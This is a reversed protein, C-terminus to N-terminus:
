DKRIAGTERLGVDRRQIIPFTSLGSTVNKGTVGISIPNSSRSFSSIRGWTFRGVPNNFTGTTSLGIVSTNSKINCTAIGTVPDFAHIYYINDLCITSIGIISNNHTDVSTVGTGIKTDTIYLPYGTTLTPFTLPDRSLTFKIALPVGVGTTTAIGVIVGDYGTVLQAKNIKDISQRAISIIINPPATYTYGFGPNVIQAATVQGNVITVTATATTGIGIGFRKPPAIKITSSTGIGSGSNTVVLSQITGAISVIATVAASVPDNYQDVIIAGFETPNQNEYNFFSANDVFLLSSNDASLDKIIRATPYVQSELSDRTKPIITNNIFLDTKQKTWSIPRLRGSDIGDGLYLNTEIKDSAVIDVVTREGQEITNQLDTNNSLIRISDGPKITESVTVKVSDENITGVYFFVSINDESKPPFTFAFSTGGNFTYAKKPEQLAGNIFIVLLADFDILQSDLDGDNTEFSLLQSKYYLPFRTRVGDQYNKISDIYNLEGFQWSAFNDNFVDVVTLEFPVLPASLEKATVLGVPRFKDGRRFGYGPRRIKYGSIEFVSGAIGVKNQPLVGLGIANTVIGVFSGIASAVDACDNSNYVGPLGSIDGEITPDFYQPLSSYQSITISTTISGVNLSTKDTFITGIGISSIKTDYQILNPLTRVQNGVVIGSTNIGTIETTTIGITAALSTGIGVNRIVNIAFDKAKGYAYISQQEEGVLYGNDIYIRGSEYVKSNGGYQLNYAIADLVLEIDDTCNENGGPVLFGPFAQLMNGVSEEAILAKNNKILRAADALRGSITLPEKDSVGVELDLLLGIGTETTAGSGVRFTGEISMNDYTPPSVIITPSVYGSGGNNINFTLTGGVGVTATISAATGTHSADIVSVSVPNRYGSGFSGFQKVQTRSSPLTGLGIANTVIGVFSGIASSTDACDNSNYVGPLGSIDGEVTTDFYQALTSYQSITISTTISGTNLSLKDIFISGIGISSIKTDYQILNPLTRVQKGVTIGSTNIGTIETTTIGITAAISTGIGVNRIANIALNRSQQFAYISENEEGKLYDNTIYILGADYTLDNGGYQLNYSVAELVTVIDDECQVNGGPVSFGPFQALMRGVTEEAILRKNQLILRSADAVRGSVVLPPTEISTITGLGSIRAAVNAGVLPAYGVGVTSGLSVIVGGRPLQNKNIDYDSIILDGNEDSIGSFIVSTFGITSVVEIIAFNNNLNNETTPAQFISNIFIIGNGGTTGLGVTNIGQATLRYTAGIGTFKESISDYIQNSEYNKRLFVRGSFSARDRTLNREDVDSVFFGSGRPPDTFHIKNKVINYSGRYIRSSTTTTHTTAASGVSGRKVEVLPYDGTFTIPGISTTGLGVNTILMYEDDVKLLDKPNVSAIGSLSFVTDAVGVNKSLTFVLDSYALPYQVLNNLTIITKPNKKFMEFEHANGGGRNTFTVAIGSDADSKRAAIRFQDNNDKIAYVKSPLLSTTVGTWDFASVIGLATQAIGIFTSTPRYILEEGTSFFHNPVYFVGTSLNFVQTDQPDVTKMFIPFGNYYTSFETVNLNESNLGYAFAFGATDRVSGYDLEPPLNVDDTIDYIQESFSLIKISTTIGADPYFQLVIDNNSYVANFTGIGLPETPALFPYQTTFIDTGDHVLLVQHLTHTKGLGVQITAKISSFLTKDFSLVTATTIGATSITCNTTYLATRETGNLQGRLKFRYTSSIGVATSGFGVTKGQIKVKSNFTNYFDLKLDNGSVYSTFIGIPTTSAENNTSDFYLESLYSNTGDHTVYVEVYNMDSKTDCVVAFNAYFSTFTSIGLSLINSTTGIGISDNTSILNIFGIDKSVTDLSLGTYETQIYKVQYDTNFVDEADFRLYADQTFEDLEAYFDGVVNDKNSINGKKLNFISLDDNLSVLENLEVTKKSNNDSIGVITQILFRNFRLTNDLTAIVSYNPKTDELSSFRDSIDDVTLVRNTRVEIYDSLNLNDFKVFKSKLQQATIDVDTDLVLEFNNITDVRREDIFDNILSTESDLGAGTYGIGNFEVSNLLETDSFNKLGSSHVLRNVPTVIQEWEKPSKITYSLNQYYDNDPLVQSDESLKGVEDSWGINERTSPGIDFSGSTTKVENVSAIAGSEYGKILYGKGIKDNGVLRVFNANSASVVLDTKVYGFGENLYVGEGRFFNYHSQTVTFRPYNTYEIISAYADQVTKAIGPNVTLGAVSYELRGPNSGSYYNSVTFFQYGYDSSNFGTGEVGSKQIGEVWISDGITFPDTGFGSLPTSLTCTIIGSSSSEVLSVSVGNSNNVTRITVPISPLGAPKSLVDITEITSGRLKSRLDGNTILERTDSDIVIVQPETIYNTGGFEVDVRDITNSSKILAVQPFLATPRLTKDASYDFGSNVIRVQNAKGISDSKAILYAGVGADTKKNGTFKPIEKYDTTSIIKIKSVGGIAYKSQTSYKLIDCDSQTYYLSEPYDRLTISFATNGVGYVSYSNSYESDIFSIQCPNLVDKDSTSIYGGKELNYSLREPLTDSYKLALSAFTSVGVTGIGSTTFINTSGVSVFKKSFNEDYYINFEYGILSPDTLDFVLDNNKVVKIEPNILSLEQNNGGSTIIDISQINSSISDEYSEYLSITNNDVKKIFYVYGDVLGGAASSGSSYYVKDGTKLSHNVITFTNNTTNVNSTTITIPNILITSNTYKVKTFTTTGFGVVSNPNVALTIIDGDNLRHSSATSVISKFKNIKAIQETYKSKIYYEYDNTGNSLFFVGTGTTLGVNDTLGIFDKSKNIIYVEKSNSSAFFGYAPSGTSSYSYSIDGSTSTKGIEVLDGTKFPHDPIYISQTPIFTDYKTNGIYYSKSVTIGASTGVGVASFANFYIKKNVKSAFPETKKSITFSDPVFYIPTSALHSTALGSYRKVRLAGSFVNLITVIESEIRISSGISVNIPFSSVSIDTVIGTTAYNSLTQSLTASYTSVGIKYIGSLNSLATSVGSITVRDDGVFDHNPNITVRVADGSEWSLIANDYSTITSSLSVIDQGEVETVEVVLNNQSGTVAFSLDDGVKYNNGSSVIEFSDVVGSYVSEVVTKQNILENSEIIFDNGAYKDGVKYPNTNRLLNNNNFDFSQDLLIVSPSFYSRYSGGVFYPFKGVYEGSPNQEVCAFYAYTGHPFEPTKCYRGNYEDLDGNGIYQYDEVFFGSSFGVPRNELVILSYGSIMLRPTSDINEPDDYGYPGYIPNGDYAWGIIKSHDTGDDDFYDMLNQHYGVVYYQLNSKSTLLVENAPSRYLSEQIGYKYSSNVTLKRIETDFKANQGASKVLISTNATSYGFGPNVVVVNDVKGDEIIARLVCGTGDGSIILDPVSYYEEGGYQVQVSNIQGNVIIPRLQAFRGNKVLVNPKKNVNVVSSGYDSGTEYLYVDTITGKVVPTAVISGKFSTTGIGITSYTVSLSLEPYSFTQYGSGTSTIKVYNRRNYPTKDTGGIGADSVRFSNENIKVVYYCNSSSLGSINTTEYNYTILDGDLFGHNEFDISYNKLSIKSPKVILKRNQFGSGGNIVKIESLSKKPETKFKHIGTTNDTTFGVTNIGSVGTFVDLFTNHLRITTDNLIKAYYTGNNILPLGQGINSGQYISSIGLSQNLNNDYIITEGDRFSHKSLFTITESDIDVGGGISFQRGDFLVERSSTRIVPEFSAGSGNGGSISISVAIDIDFEQPDVYVREVSGSLVPQIKATGYSFELKPPNLVDFNEGNNLIRVNTLSGYSITDNTKYGLLEVGNILMGIPGPITHSKDISGISPNIKIKRLIAQPSILDEKQSYLTFTHTGTPISRTYDGLFVYEETGVFSSSTYLKISKKDLLIEVYYSTKDELGIIPNASCQYYIRDGTIFSIENAFNIVTSKGEEDNYGSLSLVNYKFTKTEISYSPLSNSAVFLYDDGSESDYGTCYTNQVDSIVNPSFQLTTYASTSKKLKRRLDYKTTTTGLGVLSNDLTVIKNDISTVKLNNYGSAIEQSNRILIEVSDGTRLSVNEIDSKTVLTNGSANYTDIQYRSRTNYIWSNALIEKYTPEDSYKIVEGLYNIFIEDGPIFDFTYNNSIVLNSVVGTVRLEVVKSTDGNEYGSYIESTRVTTQTPISVHISSYGTTYCGFFQNVSKSTYFIEYEENSNQDRYFISGSNAFGITSDVSVLTSGIDVTELVKTSPSITFNGTIYSTVDDYGVFILLKYYNKGGRTIIEVESITATTKDDGVKKITQGVLKNPEGSLREALAVERRVYSAASPKILYKELDVIRPTVGFLVNFLIRFSEVTGKSEYFSKAEKIFNGVNLGSVFDNDELGPTLSYKIKKYFEQLFLVSLNTVTSTVNHSAKQSSEFILEENNLDQHLNTIGSFGRICGTFSNTTIGTYTIIEDDIKLLGYREPFGKTSLVNITTSSESASSTTTTLGVVVEPTLNDLKLYQDLNDALDVPGGTYEQSIYYQKLFEPLKPSEDLIFQPLQNQVIQQIKIRNEFGTAIM